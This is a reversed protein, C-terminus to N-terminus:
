QEINTECTAPGHASLPSIFRAPISKGSSSMIGLTTRIEFLDDGDIIIGYLLLSDERLLESRGFQTILFSCWLSRLHHHERVRMVSSGTYNRVLHVSLYYSFFFLALINGTSKFDLILSRNNRHTKNKFVFLRWNFCLAAWDSEVKVNESRATELEAASCQQWRARRESQVWVWLAAEPRCKWFLVWWPLKKVSLLFM